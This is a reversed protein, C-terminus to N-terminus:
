GGKMASFFVMEDVNPDFASIKRLQGEGTRAAAIKKEAITLEVFKLLAADNEGKKFEVTSHGTQDMIYFKM